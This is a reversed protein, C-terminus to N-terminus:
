QVKSHYISKARNIESNMIKTVSLSSITAGTIAQIENPKSPKANKVIEIQPAVELDKFQNSFWSPDEKNTPDTIIKTGLGPTEIQELIKIGTIQSFDPTMGVMIAIKGQFGNGVAEFAIGVPDPEGSKKGVYLVMGDSKIEEYNEYAPLVEGIANKLEQLKYAAIKPATIGDWYSLLGGAIMTLVTLVVIMKTTLSM